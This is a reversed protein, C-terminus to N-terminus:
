VQNAREFVDKYDLFKSKGNFLDESGGEWGGLVRFTGGIEEHQKASDANFAKFQRWEDVLDIGKIQKVGQDCKVTLGDGFGTQEPRCGRFIINLVMIM